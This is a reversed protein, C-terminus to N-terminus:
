LRRDSHVWVIGVVPKKLKVSHLCKKWHAVSSHVYVSSDSTLKILSCNWSIHECVSTSLNPFVLAWWGNQAGLWMTPLVSSMKQAEEIMPDPEETSPNSSVGDKLLDSERSLSPCCCVSHETQPWWCSWRTVFLVKFLPTSKIKYFLIM